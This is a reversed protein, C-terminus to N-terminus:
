RSLTVEIINSGLFSYDSIKYGPWQKLIQPFFKHVPQNPDYKYQAKLLLCDM